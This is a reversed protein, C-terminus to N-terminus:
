RIPNCINGISCREFTYHWVDDEVVDYHIKQHSQVWWMKEKVKNKYSFLMFLLMFCQLMKKGIDLLPIFLFQM